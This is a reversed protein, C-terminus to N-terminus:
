LHVPGDALLGEAEGELLQMLESAVTPVQRLRRENRQLALEAQRLQRRVSARATGALERRREVSQEPAVLALADAEFASSVAQLDDLTVEELGKSQEDLRLVLQGVLHHAERFPLGKQVLYDALDTATSFDGCLAERMREPHFTATAIVQAMVTLSAATADVAEFAATKDEQLDRNYTLPLGKLMTLLHILAGIARGTKGRVLEAMDPNRKQPMLSSGTCWADDLTVFGFEPTSWLVLEEAIRSLHVMTLACVFALECAFDRDSVADM